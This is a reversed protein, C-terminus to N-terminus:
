IDYNWVLYTLFYQRSTQPRLDRHPSIYKLKVMALCLAKYKSSITASELSMGDKTKARVCPVREETRKLKCNRRSSCIAIHGPPRKSQKM